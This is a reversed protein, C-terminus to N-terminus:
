AVTWNVLEALVRMGDHPRGPWGRESDGLPAVTTVGRAALQDRLREWRAVPYVGVASVGAHVFRLADVLDAVRRVVVCRGLPHASLDFPHPAYVVASTVRPWAGNAFWTGGVLDERRLRLLQATATRSPRHPVHADWRALARRLAQCYRLAQREDGEVYHVLSATCASQNDVLSDTAARVAVDELVDSDFAERGVLTMGVRPTFLVTRASARARVSQITPAGGWVVVRDFGDGAVLADEVERDGGRWYVLSTHRTLPHSPDLRHM